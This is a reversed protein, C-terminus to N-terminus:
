GFFGATSPKKLNTLIRSAPATMLETTSQPHGLPPWRSRISHSRDDPWWTAKYRSRGADASCVCLYSDEIYFYVMLEDNGSHATYLISPPLTGLAVAGVRIRIGRSVGGMGGNEM